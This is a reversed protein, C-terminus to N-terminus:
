VRQVIRSEAEPVRQFHDQGADLGYNTTIYRCLASAARGKSDERALFSCM